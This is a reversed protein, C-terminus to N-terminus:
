EPSWSWRVLIALVVAWTTAATIQAVWWAEAPLQVLGLTVDLAGSIALVAAVRQAHHGGPAHEPPEHETQPHQPKVPGANGEGLLAPGTKESGHRAGRSPCRIEHARCQQPHPWPAATVDESTPAHGGENKQAQGQAENSSPAHKADNRLASRGVPSPCGSAAPSTMGVFSSPAACPPLPASGLGPPSAGFAAGCSPGKLHGPPPPQDPSPEPTRVGPGESKRLAWAVLAVAPAAWYTARSAVAWLEDHAAWWGRPALFAVAAAYAAFAGAFATSSSPCCGWPKSRSPPRHLRGPLAPTEGAKKVHWSTWALVADPAPCLMWAFAAIAPPLPLLRLLDLAAVSVLAGAVARAQKQTAALDLAAVCCAALLAGRALRADM